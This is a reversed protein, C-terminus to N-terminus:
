AQRRDEPKRSMKLVELDLPKLAAPPAIEEPLSVLKWRILLRGFSPWSTLVAIPISLLLGSLM